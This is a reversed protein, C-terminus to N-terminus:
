NQHLQHSLETALDAYRKQLHAIESTLQNSSYIQSEDVRLGRLEDQTLKAGFCLSELKVIHRKLTAVDRSFGEMEMNRRAELGKYRSRLATLRTQLSHIRAGYTEQVAAYQEKLIHIDRERAITQKRFEEANLNGEERVAERIAQQTDQQAQAKVEEKEKQLTEQVRYLQSIGEAAKQAAEQANHRAVLYDLLLGKTTKNLLKKAKALEKEHIDISQQHDEREKKLEANVLAINNLLSQIRQSSIAKHDDLEKTLQQVRQLLTDAQESPLYVTRIVRSKVAPQQQQQKTRQTLQHCKGSLNKQAKRDFTLRYATTPAVEGRLSVNSKMSLPSPVPPMDDIDVRDSTIPYRTTHGPRCDKYFTVEEAIPQTLSLLHQIRKRDEAEQIKLLSKESELAAITEKLGLMQDQVCVLEEKLEAIEQKQMKNQWEVQHLGERSTELQKLRELWEKREENFTDCRERYFALLDKAGSDMSQMGYEMLEDM